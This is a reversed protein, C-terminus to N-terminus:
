LESQLVNSIGISKTFGSIWNSLHDRILGGVSAVGSNPSVSGDVNLCAWGSEPCHWQHQRALNLTVVCNPFRGKSYYKAWTISRSLIADLNNSLESLMPVNWEHILLSSGLNQQLWDDFPQTFFGGSLCTPLLKEWM